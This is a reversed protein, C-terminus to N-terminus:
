YDLEIAILYSTITTSDPYWHDKSSARWAIINGNNDLVPVSEWLINGSYLTDNPDNVLAGGGTAIVSPNSSTASPHEALGSTTWEVSYSSISVSANNSRIGIAYATLTAPYSTGHSKSKATWTTPPWTYVDWSPYSATLFNQSNYVTTIAEAGGGILYYGAAVSVSIQPFDSATTTTASFIQIDLEDNPDYIFNAYATITSESVVGSYSSQVFWTWVNVYYSRGPTLESLLTINSDSVYNTTAGGSLLKWNYNLPPDVSNMYIDPTQSPGYTISVTRVDFRNQGAAVVIFCVFCIIFLFKMM